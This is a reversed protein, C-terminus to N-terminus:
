PPPAREALRAGRHHDLFAQDALFDAQERQAVARVRQREARRLVVLPHAVAIGPRVGAAHAGIRRRRHKRRRQLLRRHLPDDARRQGFHRPLARREAADQEGPQHQGRVPRLQDLEVDAEAVRLALRQQQPQAGIQQRRQQGRAVALQRM